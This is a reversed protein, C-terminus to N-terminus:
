NDRVPAPSQSTTKGAFVLVNAAVRDLLRNRVSLAELETEVLTFLSPGAGSLSVGQAGALRFQDALESLEPWMKFSHRAFTNPLDEGFISQGAKIRNSLALITSEPTFDHENLKGFMMATKHELTIKPVAVVVWASFLASLPRLVEGRGRGLSTGGTLFFPVDSGISLAIEHLVEFPLEIEWLLSLARLTAAADSSAGGLGAAAPIQKRLRIEAGKSRSLHEQLARAAKLALNSDTELTPDDVNLILNDSPSVTITDYLDITQFITAIEHYGDPRRGVVALGLNLKAPALAQVTKV